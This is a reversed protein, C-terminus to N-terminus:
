FRDRLASNLECHWANGSSQLSRERSMRDYSQTRNWLKQAVNVNDLYAFWNRKLIATEDMAMYPVPLDIPPPESAVGPAGRPHYELACVKAFSRFYRYVIDKGAFTRCFKRGQPSHFFKEVMARRYKWEQYPVSAKSYPITRHRKIGNTGRITGHPTERDGEGLEEEHKIGSDITYFEPNDRIGMVIPKVDTLFQRYIKLEAQAMIASGELKAKTYASMLLTDRQNQSYDEFEPSVRVSKVYGSPNTVVEVKGDLETGTILMEDLRIQYEYKHSYVYGLIRKAQREPMLRRHHAWMAGQVRHLIRQYVEM